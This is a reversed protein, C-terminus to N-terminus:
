GYPRRYTALAHEGVPSCVVLEGSCVDRMVLNPPFYAVQRISETLGLHEFMRFVNPGLQIGAGIEGLADAQELMQVAFGQRALVLAATLGGIGGGAIGFPHQAM